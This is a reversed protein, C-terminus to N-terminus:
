RVWIAAGVRLARLVSGLQSSVVLEQPKCASKSALLGTRCSVPGKPESGRLRLVPRYAAFDAQLGCSYTADEKRPAAM